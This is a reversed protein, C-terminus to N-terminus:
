QTAERDIHLQEPIGDDADIQYWAMAGAPILEPADLCYAAQRWWDDGNTRGVLAGRHHQECTLLMQLATNQGTVSLSAIEAMYTSKSM